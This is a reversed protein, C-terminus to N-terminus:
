LPSITKLPMQSCSIFYKNKIRHTLIHITSLLAMLYCHIRSVPTVPAQSSGTHSKPVSSPDWALTVLWRLWQFKERPKLIKYRINEIHNNYIFPYGYSSKPIQCNLIDDDLLMQGLVQFLHSRHSGPIGSCWRALPVPEKWDTDTGQASRSPSSQFWDWM